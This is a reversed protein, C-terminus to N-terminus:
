TRVGGWREGLLNRRFVRSLRMYLLFFVCGLLANAGLYFLYLSPEQYENVVFFSSMGLWFFPHLFFVPTMTTLGLLMLVLLTAM